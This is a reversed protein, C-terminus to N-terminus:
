ALGGHETDSSPDQYIFPRPSSSRWSSRYLRVGVFTVLVAMSVGAIATPIDTAARQLKVLRGAADISYESPFSQLLLGRFLMGLEQGFGKFNWKTWADVAKAMEDAASDGAVDRPFMFELQVDKLSYIAESLMQQTRSGINCKELAMPFSAMALMLESTWQQQGLGPTTTANLGHQEKNMSIQAILSWLSMFVDKFFASNGAICQHLDLTVNVSLDSADTITVASGDVFFGSMVGEMVQQIIQEKPVGEPLKSGHTSKSLLIKRLCTGIDIGFRHFDKAEFAIIGDALDHAVDVGSVLIRNEFFSANVLNHAATLLLNLADGHVCNQMLQTSLAVLSTIKMVGDLGAGMVNPKRRHTLNQELRHPEPILGKIATVVDQGAGMVDGTVEGFNTELCTKEGPMLKVKHMFAEIIGSVVDMSEQSLTHHAGGNGRVGKPASPPAYSTSHVPLWPQGLITSASTLVALLQISVFNM